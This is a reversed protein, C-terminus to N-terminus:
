EGPMAGLPEKSPVLCSRWEAKPAIARDKIVGSCAFAAGPPPRDPLAEIVVACVAVVLQERAEALLSVVNHARAQRVGSVLLLIDGQEKCQGCLTVFPWSEDGKPYNPLDQRGQTTCILVQGANELHLHIPVQGLQNPRQITQCARVPGERQSIHGLNSGDLVDAAWKHKSWVHNPMTSQAAHPISQGSAHPPVEITGQEYDVRIQNGHQRQHPRLSSSM